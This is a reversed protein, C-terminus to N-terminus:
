APTENPLEHIPLRCRAFAGGEWEIRAEDTDLRCLRLVHIRNSRAGEGWVGGGPPGSDLGVIEIADAPFGATVSVVKRYSYVGFPPADSEIALHARGGAAAFALAFNIYDIQLTPSGTSSLLRMAVEPLQLWFPVARGRRGDIFVRLVEVEVRSFCTWLFERVGAPLGPADITRTGTQTNLEFRKQEYREATGDGRDEVTVDLVPFGLYDAM